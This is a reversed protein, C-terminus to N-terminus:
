RGLQWLGGLIQDATDCLDDVPGNRDVSGVSVEIVGRTTDVVAACSHSTPAHNSIKAGPVPSSSDTFESGMSRFTDMTGKTAWITATKSDDNELQCAKMAGDAPWDRQQEAKRYGISEYEEDSIETCPDFLVVDPKNKFKGLELDGSAFHFAGEPEGSSADDSESQCASVALALGCLITVTFRQQTM